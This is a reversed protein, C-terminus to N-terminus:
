AKFAPKGTRDKATTSRVKIPTKKIIHVQNPHTIIYSKKGTHEFANRYALTHVGKSRIANAMYQTARMNRTGSYDNTGDEKHIKQIATYHQNHEEKSFLGSHHLQSLLDLNGHEGGDGNLHHINGPSLRAKYHTRERYDANDSIEEPKRANAYSGVQRAAKYTGFHSLPHFHDINPEPSIHHVTEHGNQNVESLIDRLRKM